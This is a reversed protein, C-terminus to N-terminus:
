WSPEYFLTLLACFNFFIKQNGQWNQNTYHDLSPSIEFYSLVILNQKSVLGTEIVFNKLNQRWTFEDTSVLTEFFCLTEM